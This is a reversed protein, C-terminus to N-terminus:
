EGIKQDQPVMLFRGGQEMKSLEERSPMAIKAGKAALEKEFLDRVYPDEDKFLIMTNTGTTLGEATVPYKENGPPGGLRIFRAPDKGNNFHQHYWQTPPVFLVGPGWPVHEVQDGNGDKWPTPGLSNPWLLSYGTGSLLIITAGANHRHAREYTAFPFQEVHAPLSSDSLLLHRDIDKYGQGANFLRMTWVNRVLNVVSLSHHETTPRYNISNEPDFYNIQGAYRDEFDFSNNWIFDRNRFVDIVLPLDSEVTLLAPESGTNFHQHWTNLPPAFVSGQRWRIVAKKEPDADRWIHTEGEGTLIFTHEEYIHREAKTSAGPEIQMLYNDVAGGTGELNVYAGSINEGHRKWPKLELEHLNAAWGVYVPINEEDLFREYTTKAMMAQYESEPNFRFGEQGSQGWVGAGLLLVVVLSLFKPSFKTITKM